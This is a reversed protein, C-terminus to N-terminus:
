GAESTDAKVFPAVAPHGLNNVFCLLVVKPVEVCGLLGGLSSACLASLKKGVIV